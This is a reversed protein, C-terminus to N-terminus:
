MDNGNKFLVTKGIIKFKYSIELLLQQCCLMQQRLLLIAIKNTFLSNTLNSKLNPPQRKAHILRFDNVNNEVLRNVATNVLYIM